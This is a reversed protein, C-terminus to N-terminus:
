EHKNRRLFALVDDLSWTNLVTDKKIKGKRAYRIGLEMFEFSKVNHADTNIALTAGHEQAYQAWKASLDFRLPNANIELVTNTEAAREILEEMMVAYGPRRGIIRGTPHALIDVYPNDLANNLRKMIDEAPQNLSSHIAAIVIDMEALFDDAFDLTGDPLIDMEVGSLIHIDPYLENLRAIEERQRKLREENLGNAVRLYKSHDTIAVYTYGRRRAEQVMEEVSEAGDSWTTHMHLDGQIMDETLYPVEQEFAEIPFADERMEPPMYHLGFHDFFAEESQFRITENTEEIEVGYENIKEGKEKARQRMSINHEKSGTFHHLTTAFENTSVLRFDVDIDYRAEITVSVKTDGKAIIRKVGDMDVLQQAVAEPQETAIIYDIDKVTEKVRRLSGAQSFREIEEITELYLEIEKAIPLMLALPIREPRSGQDKLAALINEVTKKGFGALEAVSGNECAEQLEEKNTISLEKYLKAIRKGGLGPLELLTLLGAPVEEQLQDLVPSSGQEIFEQITQNTGKGIGKISSFDDIEELSREDREISQAAKRYAAIRFPNEGQIELYLAIKELLQIIDKKNLSM